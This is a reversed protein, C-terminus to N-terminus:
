IKISITDSYLNKFCDPIIFAFYSLLSILSSIVYLCVSTHRVKCLALNSMQRTRKQFESQMNLILNRAFSYTKYNSFSIIYHEVKTINKCKKHTETNNM